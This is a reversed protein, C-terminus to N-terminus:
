KKTPDWKGDFTWQVTIDKAKPAGPATELNDKFWAYDGAKRHDNYYYERPGWYVPKATAAM